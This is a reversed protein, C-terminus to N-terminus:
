FLNTGVLVTSGSQVRSGGGPSQIFIRANNRSPGIRVDLSLGLAKLADQADKVTRGSLDPVTVATSVVVTIQASDSGDLKTGAPPNTRVVKGGDVSSSFEQVVRPQFGADRLTRVATDAPQGAVNPIAVPPGKSLVVTVQEGLRLQTGPKPELRVVADKPIKQDFVNVAGELRPQLDVARIADAAEDASVGARVDPVVPRGASVVLTIPDGLLADGGGGPKTEIVLGAPIDNSRALEIRPSLDAEELTRKAQDVQLNAVTPVQTWRGATFWWTGVGVAAMLLAAILGVVLLRHPNPAPAPYGPMRPDEPPGTGGFPMGPTLNSQALDSRAMTMTGRPGPSSESGAPSTVVPINRMTPGDIGPDTTEVDPEGAPVPIPAAPIGLSDRLQRLERLFAAADPPRAEPDRRTARLVLDELAAPVGSVSQSLAPVDDNVHRYAVSIATDGTYPPVGTLMEYLVVAAAYVDSRATAAGTSVQEPSLYAVTGLIVASSTVGAGAIARVLGFDGVKIITGPGAPDSHRSQQSRRGILVNEPKVDRHVLGAMHAAALASLVQEMVTLALPVPLRGRIALLDRLTGGDVLEMVLYVLVGDPGSDVGQDHVAVVNSNHIKAASRAEDKFREVFMRDGVFRSDMVKIAVPRDLRTDLGRYVASMGGHALLADIRYRGELLAGTVM